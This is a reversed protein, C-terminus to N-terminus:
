PIREFEFPVEDPFQTPVPHLVTLGSPDAHVYDARGPLSFAVARTNVTGPWVAVVGHGRSHRRLFRIPDIQLWPSWCLTELDYLLRYNALRDLLEQESRPSPDSLALETVSVPVESVARGLTELLQRSAGHDGVILSVSGPTRLDAITSTAAQIWSHSSTM